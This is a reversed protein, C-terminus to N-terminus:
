PWCMDLLSFPSIILMSGRDISLVCKITYICPPSGSELISDIVGDNATTDCQVNLISRRISNGPCM